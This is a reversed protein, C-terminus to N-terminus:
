DIVVDDHRSASLVICTWQMYTVVNNYGLLTCDLLGHGVQRATRAFALSNTDTPM